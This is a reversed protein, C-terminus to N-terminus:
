FSVPSAKRLATWRQDWPMQESVPAVDRNLRVVIAIAALNLLIALLAPVVAATFLRIHIDQDRHLLAGDRDVAPHAIEAHRGSRDNGDLVGPLLRAQANRSARGQHLHRRDRDFLRVHRRLRRIRRYDCLRSRRPSTRLVGHGCRLDGASFGAMTSFTGMLLFLPVTALDVNSLVSAPETALLTLATGWSTQLALGAVGVIIMAFGIPVQALILAFLM